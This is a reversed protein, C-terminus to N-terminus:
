ADANQQRQLVETFGYSRSASALRMANHQTQQHQQHIRLYHRMENTNPSVPALPRTISGRAAASSPSGPWPWSCTLPTAPLAADQKRVASVM